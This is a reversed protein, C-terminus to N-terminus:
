FIIINKIFLVYEMDVPGVTRMDYIVTINLLVACKLVSNRESSFILDNVTFYMVLTLKMILVEVDSKDVYDM